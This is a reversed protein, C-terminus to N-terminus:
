RASLSPQTATKRIFKGLAAQDAGVLEAIRQENVEAVIIEGVETMVDTFIGARRMAQTQMENDSTPTVYHLADAKCRHILFLQLLAMIRKRRIAPATNQDRLSLLTRGRRDRIEAFIM